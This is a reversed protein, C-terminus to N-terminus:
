ENIIIEAYAPDDIYPLSKYKECEMEPSLKGLETLRKRFREAALNSAHVDAKFVKAETMQVYSQNATSFSCENVWSGQPGAHSKDDNKKVVNAYTFASQSDQAAM